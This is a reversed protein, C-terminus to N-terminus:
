GEGEAGHKNNGIVIHDHTYDGIDDHTYDEVLDHNNDGDYYHGMSTKVLIILTIVMAMM